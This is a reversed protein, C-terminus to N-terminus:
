FIPKSTLAFYFLRGGYIILAIGAIRNLNAIFKTTILPRIKDALYVKLLDTFLVTILIGAYFGVMRYNEASYKIATMSAVGIWFILVFPNVGNVLYGKLIKKLINAFRRGVHEGGDRAIGPKLLMKLGFVLLILGGGIGLYTEFYQNKHIQAVGLQCLFIYSADSLSVGFAMAAGPFFGENMSTQILLFFVPGIMIALLLGFFIGDLFPM